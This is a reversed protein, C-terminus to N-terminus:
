FSNLILLKTLPEFLKLFHRLFIRKPHFTTNALFFATEFFNARIGIFEEKDVFIRSFKNFMFRAELWSIKQRASKKGGNGEFRSTNTKKEWEGCRKAVNYCIKNANKMRMGGMWRWLLSFSDDRLHFLPGM